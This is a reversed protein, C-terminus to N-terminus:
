SVKPDEGERSLIRSLRGWSKRSKGLNVVVALWAYDGATLVQVLYQFATLNELPEGYSKFSRESIERLEAEALRRRKRDEGRACHDTAPYRGNLARRPFLMACRTCRPHSLNGEELIVMTDLVHQHLFHVQM